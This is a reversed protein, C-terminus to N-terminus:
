AAHDHGEASQRMTQEFREVDALMFRVLPRKGRGASVDVWPLRGSERLRDLTKVSVGWRAALKVRSFYESMKAEM